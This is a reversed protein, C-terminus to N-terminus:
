KITYAYPLDALEDAYTSAYPPVSGVFVGVYLHGQVVTGHTGTPTMTVAITGSEGPNLVLPTFDSPSLSLWADGTTSSVAPDFALMTAAFTINATGASAPASFPGIEDPEVFWVGQPVLGGSPTFSGSVSTGSSSAIVPDGQFAGFSLEIPVSATASVAVSSTHTPVLWIPVPAEFPVPLALDTSSPSGPATPLDVTAGSTLRADIFFAQPAVGTNTVTVPVTVPVGANLMTSTSNPLTKASVKVGNFVITGSFPESVENGVVPAAFDVILTWNGAAPEDVFASLKLEPAETTAQENAGLGLTMGTPDVLYAGTENGDDNTLSLNATINRTGAPVAFQYYAIQGEGPDRGNGGTLVGKFSGKGSIKVLSRLTVPIANREAGLISDIGGGSSAFVIAGAADGPTSPTAVTFEVTRSANAGLTFKAPSVKGFAAFHETSVRWHVVGNTGGKAETDSFIVGTWTGAAPERVEVNGFNGVGQPLSHAAFRGHPDVLILRVRQNLGGTPDGPYAIAAGLRDVGKAVKFTFTGYNNAVGSYNTFTPSSEDSLTVSGSTVKGVPALTRGSVQVTQSATGTNTVTVSFSQSKGPEDIATFQSASFLLPSSAGPTGAGDTATTIAQALLVAKYTNLLGAGQEQAPAGLDIATSTLIQKILAPTPSANGHTSRYAEIVLAAAGATLPSSLSTGGSEEIDSSDGLFNICGSFESSAQCSAFALDGPAVLDVTMATATFGSSSLASINDSLWGATAFYRAAAYNTQAYFRFTTSAGVAIVAPDSAPSGVTDFPGADGSSVVVTVGAAVAAENAQKILDLATVDPFPNGGFSENLVDVKDTLVAYDIAQIFTSITTDDNNGFVDLGVLSAGPAVGEIRINCPSPDAPQASFNTVDYTQIGQGAIANADLFAEDGSTPQGPGDGSFDQVDVFASSSDARIFNINNPDIGDAIFAVTVGAGTFGLSRATLASPDDSDTNTTQLAEPELQTADAAGCAGPIENAALPGASQAKGSRAGAGRMGARHRRIVVDPVVRDVAPNAALRAVMGESVTAALANVTRFSRLRKANVKRLESLVPEQDSAAAAGSLRHKMIVIVARNANEALGAASAAPTLAGTQKQDGSEATAAALSAAVAGVAILVAPIRASPERWAKTWGM